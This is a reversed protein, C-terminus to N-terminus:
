NLFIHSMAQKGWNKAQKQRGGLNSNPLARNLANLAQKTRAARRARAHEADRMSNQTTLIAPEPNLINPRTGGAYKRLQGQMWLVLAGNRRNQGNRLRVPLAAYANYMEKNSNANHPARKIASNVYNVLKVAKNRLRLLNAKSSTRDVQAMLNDVEKYNYIPPPVMNGNKNM